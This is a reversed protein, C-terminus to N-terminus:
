MRIITAGELDDFSRGAIIIQADKMSDRACLKVFPKLMYNESGKHDTAKSFHPPFDVILFGPYNYKKDASLSFLAYNYALQIIYNATGGAKVTWAQGDLYLDFSDKRLKVSVRGTAWRSLGDANVQNLYDNMRDALLDGLGQYDLQPTLQKIILDLESIEEDLKSIKENLKEREELTKEVREIQQLEATIKGIEQDCFAIEPPLGRVSFTRAARISNEETQIKQNVKYAEIEYADLKGKLEDILNGLEDIEEAIQSEEFSIRKESVSEDTENKHTQHCVPCLDPEIAKKQIEQDCSPCHTVKLDAFTTAAVKVRSFRSLEDDLTKRYNRLESLRQNIRKREHDIRSIESYLNELSRTADRYASSAESKEDGLANIFGARKLELDELRSVMRGKTAAISEPTVAVTMEPQNVVDVVLNQMVNVFVEKQAEIKQKEKSKAVFDGLETPYLKSAVDLFNLICASRTTENQKQAFDSWFREQKYMHRLMERWSLEPWTRDAYPNGSPVHIQPINLKGLIWESFQKYTMGEDDVFIKSKAGPEKWRREFSFQEDGIDCKLSVREYKTALEKDFAEEAKGNDGLVFDIMQLWKTKGANLEGVLVNVGKDFNLTDHEDNSPYRSAQKLSFNMATM